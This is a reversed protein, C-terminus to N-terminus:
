VFPSQGPWTPIGHSMVFNASTPPRTLAQELHHLMWDGLAHGDIYVETAQANSEASTNNEIGSTSNASTPDPEEPLSDSANAGIRNPSTSTLIAARVPAHSRQQSAYTEARHKRIQPSPTGHVQSVPLPATM